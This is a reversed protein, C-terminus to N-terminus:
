CTRSQIPRSSYVLAAAFWWLSQPTGRLSTEGLRGGTKGIRHPATIDALEALVRKAKDDLKASKNGRLLVGINAKHKSLTPLM